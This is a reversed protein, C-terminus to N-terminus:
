DADNRTVLVTIKTTYGRQRTGIFEHSAMDLEEDASGTQPDTGRSGGSGTPLM